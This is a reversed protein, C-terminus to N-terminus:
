QQVGHGGDWIYPAGPRPVASTAVAAEAPGRCTCLAAVDLYALVRRVLLVSFIGGTMM